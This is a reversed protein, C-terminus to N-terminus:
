DRTLRSELLAVVNSSIQYIVDHGLVSVYRGGNAAVRGVRVSRRLAEDSAVDVTLEMWPESMGFATVDQAGAGLRVVSEARWQSLLAAWMKLAEADAAGAGAVWQGDGDGGKREVSEQRGPGKVTIRRITQPPLALITRDVLALVGGSGIIQPPLNSAAV